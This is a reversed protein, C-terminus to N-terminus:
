ILPCTTAPRSFLHHRVAAMGDYMRDGVAAPILKALYGLVRGIGGLRMLVHAVATWRTLLAGDTTKIVVGDPLAPRDAEPVSNRLPESGLPAFRFAKGEPDEALLLRVLRHCLGCHGDYFLMEAPGPRPKVWAPDFTFFHLMVMGLSLDAFDILVLL